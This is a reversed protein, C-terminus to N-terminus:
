PVRRKKHPYLIQASDDTTSTDAVDTHEYNGCDLLFFRYQREHITQPLLFFARARSV